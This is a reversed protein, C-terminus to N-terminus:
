EVVGIDRAIRNGATEGDEVGHYGSWRSDGRVRPPEVGSCRCGSIDPERADAWEFYAMM